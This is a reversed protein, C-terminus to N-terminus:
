LRRLGVEVRGNVEVVEDLVEEGVVDGGGGGVSGTTRGGGWRFGGFLNEELDGAGDEVEDVSFVADLESGAVEGDCTEVLAVVGDGDVGADGVLDLPWEGLVLGGDFDVVGM